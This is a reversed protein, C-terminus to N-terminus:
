LNPTNYHYRCVSLYSENGGIEVQEGDYVPNGDSVRLNMTAKHGCWRCTTKMEILKDSQLLLQESGPFLNNSFDNKLGYAMVPVNFEDVITTLDLVQKPTLFQAEDVLVADYDNWFVNFKPNYLISDDPGLVVAEESLGIRSSITGVGDRTDTAPTLLLVSKGQERYSHATSLLQISKGSNMTGYIFFLQAM